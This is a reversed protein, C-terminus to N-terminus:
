LTKTQEVRWFFGLGGIDLGLAYKMREVRELPTVPSGDDCDSVRGGEAIGNGVQHVRRQAGGCLQYKAEGTGGSRGASGDCGQAEAIGREAGTRRARDRCVGDGAIGVSGAICRLYCSRRQFRAGASDDDM